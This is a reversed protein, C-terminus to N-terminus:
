RSSACKIMSGISGASFIAFRCVSNPISGADCYWLRCRAAKSESCAPLAGAACDAAWPFRACYAFYGSATTDGEYDHNGPSPRSIPKFAGWTPDYCGTFESLWGSDGSEDGLPLVYQPNLPGLLAATQSDGPGDCAHQDGAAVLVPDGTQTALSRSRIRNGVATCM